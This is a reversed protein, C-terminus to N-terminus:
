TTERTTYFPAVFIALALRSIQASFFLCFRWASKKRRWFIYVGLPLVIVQFLFVLTSFDLGNTDEFFMFRLIDFHVFFQYAALAALFFSVINIEQDNGPDKTNVPNVSQLMQSASNKAKRINNRRQASHQKKAENQSKLVNLEESSLNRSAIEKKAAVVAVPDYDKSAEIIRLLEIDALQKYLETFKDM